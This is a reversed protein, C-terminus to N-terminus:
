WYMTLKLQLALLTVCLVNQRVQRWFRLIKGQWLSDSYHRTTTQPSVGWMITFRKPHIAICLLASYLHMMWETMRVNKLDKRHNEAIRRSRDVWLRCWSTKGTAPHLTQKPTHPSFSFSGRMLWDCRLLWSCFQCLNLQKGSPLLLLTPLCLLTSLLPLWSQHEGYPHCRSNM